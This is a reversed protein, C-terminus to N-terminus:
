YWKYSTVMNIEEFEAMTSGGIIAKDEDTITGTYHRYMMWIAQQLQEIQSDSLNFRESAVLANHWQCKPPRVLQLLNEFRSKSLLPLSM